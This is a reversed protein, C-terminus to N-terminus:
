FIAAGLAVGGLAAVGTMLWMMWRSRELQELARDTNDTARVVLQDSRALLKSYSQISSDQVAILSKLSLALSDRSTREQEYVLQLQTFEKHLDQYFKLQKNLQYYKLKHLVYLSDCTATFSRGQRLLGINEPDECPSQALLTNVPSLLLLLTFRMLFKMDNESKM